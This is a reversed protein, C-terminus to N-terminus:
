AVDALAARVKALLLASENLRSPPVHCHYRADRSWRYLLRYPDSVAPWRGVAVNRDEHCRTPTGTEVLMAEVEHLAAYFRTTVVWEPWKSQTGGISTSVTEARGAWERHDDVSPM